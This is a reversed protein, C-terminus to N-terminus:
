GRALLDQYFAVLEDHQHTPRESMWADASHSPDAHHAQQRYDYAKQICRMAAAPDGHVHTLEAGQAHKRTCNMRYDTHAQRSIALLHAVLDQDVVTM